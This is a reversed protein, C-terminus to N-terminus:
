KKKKVSWGFRGICEGLGYYKGHAYALLGAKEMDFAGTTENLYKDDARVNVVDAIFMDHSGLPIIERVRCEICLPSEEIVPAKVVSAKGPTLKMEEFKTHDKGSAVGCWDTAFALSETTLNIVFERNKKLIPYSYREPRISIYCMPPNTCLTGVWSATLINYEAPESGCSIMVAPLPYIMTGPKWDTKM